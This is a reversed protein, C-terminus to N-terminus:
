FGSKRGPRRNQQRQQLERLLQLRFQNEAQYFRIVKPPPLVQKLKSHFDVSLESEKVVAGILKDGLEAIQANSMNVENQNFLRIYGQKETQIKLRQAQYENYVPWFKEAEASTLNLRKTFFGIKYANLKERNSNEQCYASMITFLSILLFLVPRKMNDFKYIKM